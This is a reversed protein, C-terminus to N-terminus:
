PVSPQLGTVNTYKSNSRSLPLMGGEFGSLIFAAVRGTEGVNWVNLLIIGILVPITVAVSPIWHSRFRDAAIGAVIASVISVATNITPITNIRSVSYLKPKAKLYLSFPTSGPMFNQDLLCWQLVFVYWHWRGFVRKFITRSIKLESPATLSKLRSKAFAYEDSSM